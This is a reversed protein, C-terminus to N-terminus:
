RSQNAAKAAVGEKHRRAAPNHVTNWQPRLAGILIREMEDMEFKTACEAFEIRDIIAFKALQSMHAGLRQYLNTSQGVYFIEDGPGILFYIYFGRPCPMNRYEKCEGKSILSRYLEDEPGLGYYALSEALRLKWTRGLLRAKEATAPNQM